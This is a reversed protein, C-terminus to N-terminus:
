KGREDERIKMQETRGTAQRCRDRMRNFTSSSPPSNEKFEKTWATEFKAYTADPLNDTIWQMAWRETVSSPAEEKGREAAETSFGEYVLRVPSKKGLSPDTPQVTFTACRKRHLSDDEDGMRDKEHICYVGNRRITSRNVGIERQNVISFFANGKVQNVDVRDYGIGPQLKNLHMTYLLGSGFEGEESCLNQLQDAVWSAGENDSLKSPWLTTVNDILVAEMPFGCYQASRMTDHIDELVSSKEAGKLLPERNVTIIVLWELTKGDAETRGDQDLIARKWESGYRTQLQQLNMESTVLLTRTRKGKRMNKFPLTGFESDPEFPHTGTALALAVAFNFFSKMSGKGGYLMTAEGQQLMGEILPEPAVYDDPVDEMRQRKLARQKVRGDSDTKRTESIKPQDIPVHEFAQIPRSAEALKALQEDEKAKQELRGMLQRDLYDGVQEESIGGRLGYRPKETKRQEASPETNADTCVKTAKKPPTEGKSPIKATM